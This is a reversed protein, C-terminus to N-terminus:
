HIKVGTSTRIFGFWIATWIRAITSWFEIQYRSIFICMAGPLSMRQEINVKLLIFQCQSRLSLCYTSSEVSHIWSRILACFHYSYCIKFDVCSPLFLLFLVFSHCVFQRLHSWSAFYSPCRTFLVSFSHLLLSIRRKRVLLERISNIQVCFYSCIHFHCRVRHEICWAILLLNNKLIGLISLSSYM